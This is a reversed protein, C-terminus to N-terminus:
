ISLTTLVMRIYYFVLIVWEIFTAAFSHLNFRISDEFYYVQLTSLLYTFSPSYILGGLDVIASASAIDFGKRTSYYLSQLSTVILGEGIWTSFFLFSQEHFHSWYYLSYCSWWWWYISSDFLCLHQQQRVVVRRLLGFSSSSLFSQRPKIRHM